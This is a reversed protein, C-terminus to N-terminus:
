KSRRHRPFKLALHIWVSHWFMHLYKLANTCKKHHIFWSYQIDYLDKATYNIQFKSHATKFVHMSEKYKAAAMCVESAPKCSIIRHAHVCSLKKNKKFHGNVCSFFCAFKAIAHNCAYINMHMCCTCVHRHQHTSAVQPGQTRLVEAYGRGSWGPWTDHCIQMRMHNILISIHTLRSMSCACMNTDIWTCPPYISEATHTVEKVEVCPFTNSDNTQIQKMPHKPLGTCCLLCVFFDFLSLSLDKMM